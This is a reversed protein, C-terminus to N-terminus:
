KLASVELVWPELRQGWAVKVVYSPPDNDNYRASNDTLLPDINPRYEKPINIQNVNLGKIYGNIIAAKKDDDYSVQMRVQGKVIIYRTRDAYKDRLANRDLSADIVILRTESQKLKQVYEKANKLDRKFEKRKPNRNVLHRKDRMQREARKVLTQYSEGDYELVLFAERPLISRRSQRAKRRQKERAIDFGLEDLKSEDLWHPTRGRYSYYDQDEEPGVVNWNLRLALGSNEKNFAWRYPLALERETLTVTSDAEGSRNYYIGSLAVTNTVLILVVGAILAYKKTWCAIM